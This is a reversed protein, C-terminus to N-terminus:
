PGLATFKRIGSTYPKFDQALKAHRFRSMFDAVDAAAGRWENYTKLAAEVSPLKGNSLKHRTRLSDEMAERYADFAARERVHLDTWEDTWEEPTRDRPTLASIALGVMTDIPARDNEWANITQKSKGLRRGLEEQSLGLAKRAAVLEEPSMPQM